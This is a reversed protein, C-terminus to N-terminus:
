LRLRPPSKNPFRSIKILQSSIFLLHCPVQSIELVARGDKCHLSQTPSWRRRQQTCPSTHLAMGLTGAVQDDLFSVQAVGRHICIARIM